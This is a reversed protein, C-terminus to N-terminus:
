QCSITIGKSRAAGDSNYAEIFYALADGYGLFTAETYETSNAALSAILQNNRYVNYGAESNSMDQWKLVVTVTSGSQNNNSVLDCTYVWSILSPALPAPQPTYTPPSTMKPLQGVNGSPTAFDAVVWCAGSGSPSKVVWYNGQPPVGLAEAIQGAKIITVLAFKIGPGSRCNTDVDFRIRAKADTPTSTLSVTPTLEPVSTTPAAAFVTAVAQTRLVNADPTPDVPPKSTPLNCAALLIILLVAYLKKQSM